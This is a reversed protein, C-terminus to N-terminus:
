YLAPARRSPLRASSEFRTLASSAVRPLLFALLLDSAPSSFINRRRPPLRPCFRRRSPSFNLSAAAALLFAICLANPSLQVEGRTKEGTSIVSASRAVDATRVLGYTKNRM